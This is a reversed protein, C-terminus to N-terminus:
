IRPAFGRRLRFQFPKPCTRFVGVTSFDHIKKSDIEYISCYGKGEYLALEISDSIRKKFDLNNKIAVIKDIKITETLEKHIINVLPLDFRLRQLSGLIRNISPIIRFAAAGFVGIIPIINNVPKNQVTMVILLISLGIITVLELWFRPLIQMM